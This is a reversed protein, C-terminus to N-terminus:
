LIFLTCTVEEGSLTYCPRSKLPAQPHVRGRGAVSKGYILYSNVTKCYATWAPPLSYWISLYGPLHQYVTYSNLTTLNTLCSCKFCKLICLFDHCYGAKTYVKCSVSNVKNLPFINRLRLKIDVTSINWMSWPDLMVGDGERRSVMGGLAGFALSVM